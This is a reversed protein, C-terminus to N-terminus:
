RRLRYFQKGMHPQVALPSIANTVEAWPGTLTPASQLVGNGVWSVLVESGTYESSLWGASDNASTYLSVVQGAGGEDIEPGLFHINDFSGVYLVNTMLMRVNLVISDVNSPDFMATPIPPLVFQDLSAHLTFWGNPDPAYLNTYQIWYGLENALIGKNKVQM